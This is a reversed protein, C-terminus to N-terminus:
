GALVQHLPGSVILAGGATLLSLVNMLICIVRVVPSHMQDVPKRICRIILVMAVALMSILFAPHSFVRILLCRAGCDPGAAFPQDGQAVTVLPLAVREFFAVQSCLLAIVSLVLDRKNVM